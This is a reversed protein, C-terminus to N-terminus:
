FYVKITRISGPRTPVRVIKGDHAIAGLDNELFDSNVVKKPAAPLTLVAEAGIGESDYWQVVWAGSDEAKKITALVLNRPELRVFSNSAPLTGTRPDMVTVLLPANYEYGRRVTRATQWRGAHPYLAYEITHKGRDATPDPWVPSRLLSLRITGGKIDYGYKSRNLLSVGYDDGSLDAWRQASVEVKASDYSDRWLTSRRISGYPIEYSAATDAVSVPFGARIRGMLGGLRKRKDKLSDSGPFLLDAVLVAVLM